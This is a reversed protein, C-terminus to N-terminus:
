SNRVIGGNRPLGNSFVVFFINGGLDVHEAPIIALSSISVAVLHEQGVRGCRVRDIPPVDPFTSTPTGTVM